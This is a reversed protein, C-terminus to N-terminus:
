WNLSARSKNTALEVLHQSWRRLPDLRSTGVELATPPAVVLVDVIVRLQAILGLDQALGQAAGRLEFERLLDLYMRRLRPVVAVAGAHPHSVRWLERQPVVPVVRVIHEWYPGARDARRKDVLRNGRYPLQSAVACDRLRQMTELEESVIVVRLQQELSIHPRAPFVGAWAFSAQTPRGGSRLIPTRRSREPHCSIHLGKGRCQVACQRLQCPDDDKGRRREFVFAQLM